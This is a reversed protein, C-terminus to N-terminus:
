PRDESSSRIVDIREILAQRISEPVAAYGLTPAILQGETLLYNLYGRLADATSESRQRAAVIVWTPATIPYAEDGPANLPDYLFEDDFTSSEIAARANPLKPPVYNGARNRVLARQLRAAVSDSLDVYGIAGSTSAILSSMGSSKEAGQTAAPWELSEGTGLRWVNAAADDLYSSFNKTTGSGDSRRVVAIRLDPLEVGPNEEAIRRDNWVAIDSQFIRAITDPGLRLEPVEALNYSVTIPAAVVPFYLVEDRFDAREEAKIASDTGAFQVTRAALDAKGASSGSKTYNVTVNRAVRRFEGSVAQQLPDQFSSGSGNLTGTLTRYDIDLGDLESVFREDGSTDTLGCATATISILMVSAVLRLFRDPIRM